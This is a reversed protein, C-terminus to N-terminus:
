NCLFVLDCGRSGRLFELIIGFIMPFIGIVECVGVRGM